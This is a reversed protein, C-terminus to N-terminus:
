PPVRGFPPGLTKLGGDLSRRLALSDAGLASVLVAPGSLPLLAADGALPRAPPTGDSWAPDVALISGLARHDGVVAPSDWGAAGPGIDLHQQYLPCGGLRVRLRQRVTGPSEGHRGLLLEERLLLRAGSDLEVRVDNIHHCDRAAIMPEPLWIFTAGAAVHIDTRTRSPEGDPGPLLLTASIDRLILVSDAGVDVELALQDGGIPGAAGAALCVRAADPVNAAWPEAKGAITLRLM